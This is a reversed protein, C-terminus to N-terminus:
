INLGLSKIKWNLRNKLKRMESTLSFCDDLPENDLSWYNILEMHAQYNVSLINLVNIIVEDTASLGSSLLDNCVDLSLTMLDNKESLSHDNNAYAIIYKDLWEKTRYNESLEYFWDQTFNDGVPLGLDGCIKGMENM